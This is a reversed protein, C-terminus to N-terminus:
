IILVGCQVLWKSILMLLLNFAVLGYSSLHLALLTVKLLDVYVHPKITQIFQM